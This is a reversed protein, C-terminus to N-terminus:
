QETRQFGVIIPGMPFLADDRHLAPVYLSSISGDLFLANPTGLGERFLRAFEWFTVPDDSIALVVTHADRIGVGNRIKRSTMGPRIRPHIKGDIVLMPGSQTAFDAPPRVTLFRQTTLVGATQGSLYFVGNPQIHFNGPGKATNARKLTKGHEVYLGVPSLDAEYMGANMALAIPRSGNVSRPLRAFGGYPQGNEDKWYLRLEYTRLDLVCITYDSGEFVLPSCPSASAAARAGDHAVACIGLVIGAFAFLGRDACVRSNQM